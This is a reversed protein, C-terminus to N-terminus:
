HLRHRGIRTNRGLDCHATLTFAITVIYRNANWRMTDGRYVSNFPWVFHAGPRLFRSNCVCTKTWRLTANM